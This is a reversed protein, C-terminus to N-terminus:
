GPDGVSEGQIAPASRGGSSRPAEPMGLFRRVRQMHRLGSRAEEVIQDPPLAVFGPGFGTKDRAPTANSSTWHRELERLTAEVATLHEPVFAPGRPLAPCPATERLLREFDGPTITEAGAIPLGNSGLRLVEVGAKQLQPCLAALFRAGQYYHANTPVRDDRENALEFRETYREDESTYDVGALVIRRAGFSAALVVGIESVTACPEDLTPLGAADFVCQHLQPTRLQYLLTRERRPEIMLPDGGSDTLLAGYEVEDPVGCVRFLDAPDACTAFDIRARARHFAVLRQVCVFRTGGPQAALAPLAADLSPGGSAVIATGGELPRGLQSVTRLFPLSRLLRLSRTGVVADRPRLRAEGRHRRLARAAFRAEYRCLAEYGPHIQVHASRTAAGVRDLAAEFGDADHVLRVRKSRRARLVSPHEAEVRDRLGPFPDWVLLDGRGHRAFAEIWRGLGAGILVFLARGDGGAEEFWRAASRAAAEDPRYLSDTALGALKLVPKGDRAAEISWPLEARAAPHAGDRRKPQKSDNPM